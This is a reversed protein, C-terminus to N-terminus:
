ADITEGIGPLLITKGAKTFDAKAKETDITIPPFTNYHVGVVKDCKVFGAALIADAVDMTFNGGIPLVSFDLKAWLPILQMDMTLATDGAFYFNGEATTFVFGMPNGAYTGDMFSSSHVANVGRVQGFPFSIPGGHNMGHVNKIGQNDLWDAIEAAAVCLAGTRAAIRVLDATHDGHGHSVFIYDAEISDVSIHKAQENHSIFPDFLIKKGAIQVSFCSQGYFTLKMTVWIKFRNSFPPCFYNKLAMKGFSYKLCYEQIKLQREQLRKRPYLNDSEM